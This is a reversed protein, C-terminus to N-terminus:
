YPLLDGIEIPGSYDNPTRSIISVNAGQRAMNGAYFCGVAGAGILGINLPKM